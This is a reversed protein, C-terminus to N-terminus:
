RVKLCTDWMTKLLKKDATGSLRASLVCLCLAGLLKERQSLENDQGTVSAHARQVEGRAQRSVFRRRCADLSAGSEEGMSARGFLVGRARGEEIGGSHPTLSPLPLGGYAHARVPEVVTLCSLPVSCGGWYRPVHVLKMLTPRSLPFLCDGYRPARQSSRPHQASGQRHGQAAGRQQGCQGRGRCQLGAGRVGSLVNGATKLTCSHTRIKTTKTTCRLM